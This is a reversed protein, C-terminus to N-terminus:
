RTVVEDWDGAGGEVGGERGPEALPKLHQRSEHRSPRHTCPGPVYEGRHASGRNSAVGGERLRTASQSRFQPRRQESQSRRAAECGITADMTAHTDGLIDSGHQSSTM